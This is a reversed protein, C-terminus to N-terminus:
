HYRSIFRLLGGLPSLLKSPPAAAPASFSTLLWGFCIQGFVLWLLSVLIGGCFLFWLSVQFRGYCFGLWLGM